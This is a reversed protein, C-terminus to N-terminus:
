QGRLNLTGGSSFYANQPIVMGLKKSAIEVIKEHTRGQAIELRLTENARDLRTIAKKNEVLNYGANVIYASQATVVATFFAVTVLLLLCKSRLARNIEAQPKPAPPAYPQEPAPQQLALATQGDYQYKNNYYRARKKNVLM